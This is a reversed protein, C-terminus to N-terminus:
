FGDTGPRSRIPRIPNEISALLFMKKYVSDIFSSLQSLTMPYVDLLFMKKYVSDIFGSEDLRELPRAPKGNQQRGSKSIHPDDSVILLEAVPIELTQALRTVADIRVMLGALMKKLTKHNVKSLLCTKRTGLGLEIMAQYIRVNNIEIM